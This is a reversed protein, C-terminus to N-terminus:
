QTSTSNAGVGSVAGPCTVPTDAVAPLRLADTDHDAGDVPPAGLEYVIVGYMPEFACVGVDTDPDVVLVVTDPSVAPVDYVNTTWADL